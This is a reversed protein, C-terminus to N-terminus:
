EPRKIVIAAQDTHLRKQTLPFLCVYPKNLYHYVKADFFISYLCQQNIKSSSRKLACCNNKTGNNLGTWQEGKDSLLEPWRIM